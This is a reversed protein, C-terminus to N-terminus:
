KGELVTRPPFCRMLAGLALSQQVDPPTGPAGDIGSVDADELCDGLHHYTRDCDARRMRWM